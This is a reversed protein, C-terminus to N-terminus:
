VPTMPMADKLVMDQTAEDIPKPNVGRTASPMFM